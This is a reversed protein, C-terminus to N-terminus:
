DLLLRLPNGFVFFIPIYINRKSYFGEFVHFKKSAVEGDREKVYM